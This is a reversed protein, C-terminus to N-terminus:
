GACDPLEQHPFASKISVVRGQEFKVIATWARSPTLHEPHGHHWVAWRHKKLAETVEALTMGIYRM